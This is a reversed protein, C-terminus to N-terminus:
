RRKTELEYGGLEESLSTLRDLASARKAERDAKFAANIRIDQKGHQQAIRQQTYCCCTTRACRDDRM